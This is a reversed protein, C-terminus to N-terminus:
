IDELCNIGDLHSTNLSARDWIIDEKIVRAPSGAAICNKPIECNVISGIGIASGSNIISGKLITVNNALWVRDKIIVDKSYNLRKGTSASFIPHYDHNYINVNIGLMCDNGIHISKGESLHIKLGGTSTLGEGIQLRCGKGIKITGTLKSKNGVIITNNGGYDTISLNDVKSTSSFEFNTGRGKIEISVSKWSAPKGSVKGGSHEVLKVFDEFTM